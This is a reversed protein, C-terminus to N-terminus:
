KAVRNYISTTTTDLSDPNPCVLLAIGKKIRMREFPLPFAHDICVSQMDNSLYIKTKDVSAAYDNSVILFSLHLYIIYKKKLLCYIEKSKLGNFAINFM